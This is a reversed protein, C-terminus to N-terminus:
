FSSRRFLFYILVFLIIKPRFKQINTFLGLYEHSSKKMRSSYKDSKTSVFVNSVFNMFFRVNTNKRLDYCVTGPSKNEESFHASTAHFVRKGM